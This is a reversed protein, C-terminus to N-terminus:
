DARLVDQIHKALSARVETLDPVVGGKEKTMTTMLDPELGCPDFRRFWSLDTDVNLAVGHYTTWRRVAVGISAVKKHNIWCGTNRDDRGGSLGFDSVCRILAEELAHLYAHLDRAGEELRILPYAVLQGPGHFTAKGGRAIEYVPLGIAGYMDAQGGRGVTLVPDFEAILLQDPASGNVIADVREMMLKDVTGYDTRGLDHVEFDASRSFQM